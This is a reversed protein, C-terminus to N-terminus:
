AADAERRIGDPVLAGSARMAVLAERLRHLKHMCDTLPITIAETREPDAPVVDILLDEVARAHEQVKELVMDAVARFASAFGARGEVLGCESAIQEVAPVLTVQRFDAAEIPLVDRVAEGISVAEGDDQDLDLHPHLAEGREGTEGSWNQPNDWEEAPVISPDVRPLRRVLPGERRAPTCGRAGCAGRGEATRGPVSTRETVMADGVPSAGAVPGWCRVWVVGFM